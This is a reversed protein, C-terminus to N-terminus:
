GTLVKEKLYKIGVKFAATKGGRDGRITAQTVGDMGVTAVWPVRTGVPRNQDYSICISVRHGQCTGVMVGRSDRIDQLWNIRTM